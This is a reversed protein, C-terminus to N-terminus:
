SAENGGFYADRVERSDLVASTEGSKLIQGQVLAVTRPCVNRVFSVDHEVVVLLCQLREQVGILAQALERREVADLGAAPEDMLFVAPETMVVRGVEVMRRMATPVNRVLENVHDSLGLIEAIELSQARIQREWLRSTRVSFLERLYGIRPRASAGLLLNTLITEDEMLRPTQFTRVVGLRARQSASLATLPREDLAVAGSTPKVFGSIVNLFTTKGAGNPGVLGIRDPGDLSLSLQRLVNLEGFSVSIEQAKLAISSM